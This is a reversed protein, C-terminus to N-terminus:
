PGADDQFAGSLRSEFAELDELRDEVSELHRELRDLRDALDAQGDRLDGVDAELAGVDSEVTESLGELDSRVSELEGDLTAVEDTVGAFATELTGREDVFSELMEVYAAFDSVQSQLHKIRVDHSRGPELEERLAAATEDDVRGERLEELLRGAVGEAPTGTPSAAGADPSEAEEVADADGTAADAAPAREAGNSGTAATLSEREGGLLERVADSGERDVLGDTAPDAREVVPDADVTEFRAPDVDALRYALTATEGAAFEREFTSAERRWRDADPELEVDAGPLSQLAPEGVRVTAPDDDRLTVELSVSASEDPGTEVRKRVRVGDELVTRTTEIGEEM